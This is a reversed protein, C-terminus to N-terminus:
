ETPSSLLPRLLLSLLGIGYSANAVASKEGEVARVPDIKLPVRRIDADWTPAKAETGPAIRAVIGAERLVRETFRQEAARAGGELTRMAWQRYAFLTVLLLACAIVVLALERKMVFSLAFVVM